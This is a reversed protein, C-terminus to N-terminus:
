ERRAHGDARSAAYARRIRGHMSTNMADVGPLRRTRPSTTGHPTSRTTAPTTATRMRPIHAAQCSWSQMSPGHPLIVRMRGTSEFRRSRGRGHRDGAERCSGSREARRRHGRGPRQRRSGGTARPRDHCGTSDGAGVGAARGHVPLRGNPHQPNVLPCIRGAIAACFPVPCEAGSRRRVRAGSAAHTHEEIELPSPWGHEVADRLRHLSGVGPNGGWSFVLKRACGSGIM